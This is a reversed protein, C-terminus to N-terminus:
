IGSICMELVKLFKQRLAERGRLLDNSTYGWRGFQTFYTVSSGAQHSLAASRLSTAVASVYLLSASIYLGSTSVCGSTFLYVCCLCVCGTGGGVLVM